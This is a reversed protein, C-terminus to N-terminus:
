KQVNCRLQAQAFTVDIPLFSIQSYLLKTRLRKEIL